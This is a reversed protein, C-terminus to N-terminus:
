QHREHLQSPAKGPGWAREEGFTMAGLCLAPVRLGTPGFLKVPMLGDGPM